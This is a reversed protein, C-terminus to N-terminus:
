QPAVHREVLLDQPQAVPARDVERDVAVLREVDRVRIHHEFGGRGRELHVQLQGGVHRQAEVVCRQDSRSRDERRRRVREKRNPVSEPVLGAHREELLGDGGLRRSRAQSLRTV